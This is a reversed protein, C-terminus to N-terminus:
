RRHVTGVVTTALVGVALGASYLISFASNAIANAAMSITGLQVIYTQVIMSGGNFFMQELAFPIGLKFISKLITWEFHFIDKLYIRLISKPHIVLWIAVVCGFLRAINLSLATGLIDLKLVNIFLMSSFLHIVNIIITLWLCIKAAGMGRFVAFAGMYIALFIQSIAVGVLYDRAKQIVEEEATRFMLHVLIDSFLILVLCSIIAVMSTALIVQGAARRLKETDGKGKYQAIIVTGGVSIASFIAWIMMSLPNVLSVASVSEQSSSSIMATTLLSIVNIFFQDLVLPLLMSFIQSYTFYSSSFQKKFFQDIKSDPRIITINSRKKFGM